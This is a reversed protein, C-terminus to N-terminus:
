SIWGSMKEIFKLINAAGFVLVAGILYPVARDKLSAKQDPSATIYKIGIILLMGVSVVVAVAYIVSIIKGSMETLKSINTPRNINQLKSTDITAFVESTMCIIFLLTIILLIIKKTSKKM